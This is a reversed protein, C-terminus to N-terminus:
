AHADELARALRELLHPAPTYRFRTPLGPDYEQVLVQTPELGRLQPAYALLAEELGQGALPTLSRKPQNKLEIVIRTM